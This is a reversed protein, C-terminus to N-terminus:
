HGNCSKEWKKKQTESMVDYAAILRLVPGPVARSGHEWKELGRASVGLLAAAQSQSLGHRARFQKVSDM